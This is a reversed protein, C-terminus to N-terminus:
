LAGFVYFVRIRAMHGKLTKVQPKNSHKNTFVENASRVSSINDRILETQTSFFNMFDNSNQLLKVDLDRSSRSKTLKAVTNFLSRPNNHNLHFTEKEEVM